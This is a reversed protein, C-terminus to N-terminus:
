GGFHIPNIAYIHQPNAYHGLSHRIGGTRLAESRPRQEARDYYEHMM